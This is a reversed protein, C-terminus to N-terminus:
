LRNQLFPYRALLNNECRQTTAQEEQESTSLQDICPRCVGYTAVYKGQNSLWLSKGGIRRNQQCSPCWCHNPATSPNVIPRNIDGNSLEQAFLHEHPNVKRSREIFEGWLAQSLHTYRDNGPEFLRGYCECLLLLYENPLSIRNVPSFCYPCLTDTAKHSYSLLKDQRIIM